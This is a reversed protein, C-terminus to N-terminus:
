EFAGSEPVGNVLIRRQEVMEVTVTATSLDGDPQASRAERGMDGQVWRGDKNRSVFDFNVAEGPENQGLVGIREAGLWM